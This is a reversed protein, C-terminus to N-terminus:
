VDFSTSDEQLIPAHLTSSNGTTWVFKQSAIIATGIMMRTNIVKFTKNGLSRVHSFEIALTKPNNM